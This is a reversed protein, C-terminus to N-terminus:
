QLVEHTDCAPLTELGKDGTECSCYGKFLALEMKLAENKLYQTNSMAGGSMERSLEVLLLPLTWVM